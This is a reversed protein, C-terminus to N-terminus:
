RSLYPISLNQYQLLRKDARASAKLPVLLDPLGQPKMNDKISHADQILAIIRMQARCKPYELLGIEYVRKICAAWSNKRLEQRYNSEQEEPTPPPSLKAREGRRRCSYRVYYRTLSEYTKPIHVSLAELFETTNFEHAAGSCSFGSYNM